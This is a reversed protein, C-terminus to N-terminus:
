LDNAKQEFFKLGKQWTEKKSHGKEFVINGKHMHKCSQLIFRKEKNTGKQHSTLSPNLFVRGSIHQKNERERKKLWNEKKVKKVVQKQKRKKQRNQHEKWGLFLFISITNKITNRVMKQFLECFINEWKKEWILVINWFFLKREQRRKNKSETKANKLQRYSSKESGNKLGRKTNKNIEESKEREKKEIKVENKNEDRKEKEM